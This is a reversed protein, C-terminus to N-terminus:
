KDQKKSRKLVITGIASTKNKTSRRFVTMSDKISKM